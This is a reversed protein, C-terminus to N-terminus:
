RETRSEPSTDKPDPYGWKLQPHMPVRIGDPNVETRLSDAIARLAHKTSDYQASM